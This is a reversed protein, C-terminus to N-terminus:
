CIKTSDAVKSLDGIIFWITFFVLIIIIILLFQISEKSYDIEVYRNIEKSLDKYFIRLTIYKILILSTPVLGFYFGPLIKTSVQCAYYYNFSTGALPYTGKALYINGLLGLTMLFLSFHSIISVDFDKYCIFQVIIGQLFLISMAINVSSGTGEYAYHFMGYNWVLTFPESSSYEQLAWVVRFTGLKITLIVYFLIFSNFILKIILKIILKTKLIVKM